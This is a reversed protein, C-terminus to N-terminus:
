KFLKMLPLYLFMGQTIVVLQKHSFYELKNTFLFKVEAVM